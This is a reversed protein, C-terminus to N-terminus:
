WNQIKTWFVDELIDRHEKVIVKEHEFALYYLHKIGTETLYIPLKEYFLGM